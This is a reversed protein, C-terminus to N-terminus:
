ANNELTGKEFNEGRVVGFGMAEATMRQLYVVSARGKGSRYKWSHITEKSMIMRGVSCQFVGPVKQEFYRLVPGRGKQVMKRM